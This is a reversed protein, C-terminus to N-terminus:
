MKMKTGSTEASTEWCTLTAKTTSSKMYSAFTALGTHRKQSFISDNQEIFSRISHIGHRHTHKRKFCLRDCQSIIVSSPTRCTPSPAHAVSERVVKSSSLQGSIESAASSWKVDHATSCRTSTYSQWSMVLAPIRRSLTNCVHM